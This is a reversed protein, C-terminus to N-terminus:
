KLDLGYEMDPGPPPGGPGKLYHEMWQIMRLNYDLRGCAKRNGHGEGPYLVLRVPTQNLVKLFRYLEMSQSPHVRTDNKGALILIPTKGKKVHYIPSRELLDMWKDDWPRSRTHVLFDENPIDTTGKKSIADSIGVFMVSAAFRDSLATACWASAYGGYSGGTVGVKNKDVLGMEVLHDVADVLDDFEKGAEDAQSSKSFQVGRGTSGRYNPYFVAFGRAAALQGPRSYNTLWGNNEHAEPGGHVYVILPYRKGAHGDLPHILVGQLKLGDRAKFEIVEQKAFRVKDLGENSTTMRRPETDGHKMYFVEGPHMATSAVFAGRQGDKSLSLSTMVAKGAPLIAKRGSGDVDIKNFTTEVGEDAVFMITDNDQWAAASVHGEFEPLLSKPEREDTSSVMLVGEAPDHIDEASMFALRKGDPSWVLPGLKGPNEIKGTVQGGKSDVLHIRSQMYEDDILPTPAMVVALSEGVPSWYVHVASGPIELKRPKAEAVGTDVIWVFVRDLLEEYVEAKFGKDQLKKKAEPMKETALLAVHRSDSCWSYEAIGTDLSVVRRSEGGGLPIVYLSDEKDKGRKALYSISEGNPTWAVSGVTEKGTIYATDEGRDIEIVHLETYPPGDEYKDDKAFPDRPVQLVYAIHEGDPSIVASSVARLNAILRPSFVEDGLVSSTPLLLVLLALTLRAFHVIRSRSTM